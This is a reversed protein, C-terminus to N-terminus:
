FCITKPYHSGKYLLYDDLDDKDKITEKELMYCFLRGCVYADDSANHANYTLELVEPVISTLAYSKHCPMLKRSMQLTCYYEYEPVTIGWSYLSYKLVGMDFAANHAVLPLNGIFEKVEPWIIDFSPAKLIQTPSLGNVAMCRPDFYPYRPKILTYYENLVEGKNNMKMLGISCASDKRQNATEFDIAVFEM